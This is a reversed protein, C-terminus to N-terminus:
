TWDLTVPRQRPDSQLQWMEQSILAIVVCVSVGHQECLQIGSCLTSGLHAKMSIRPWSLAWIMVKLRRPSIQLSPLPLMEEPGGLGEQADKVGGTLIRM